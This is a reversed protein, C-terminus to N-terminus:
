DANQRRVRIRRRPRQGPYRAPRLKEDLIRRTRGFSPLHPEIADPDLRGLIEFSQRGKTYPRRCDRTAHQLNQLLEQRTRSEINPLAPLAAEHLHQGFHGRLANRDSAIWTEMCVTMLLVQDDRAGLPRDWNDRGRLHNWTENIDQVPDESDILMGVYDPTTAHAHAITFDDYAQTRGGSAVLRPMRDRYGCRELLKRFGERCRTRGDKSNGGGELFIRTSM